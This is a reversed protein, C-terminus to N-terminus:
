KAIENIKLSTQLLKIMYDFHPNEGLEVLRNYIWSLHNVNDVMLDERSLVYDRSNEKFRIPIATGQLQEWNNMWKIIKEIQFETLFPLANDELIDFKLLESGQETVERQNINHKVLEIEETSYNPKSKLSELVDIIQIDGKQLKEFLTERHKAFEPSTEVFHKVCSHCSECKNSGEIKTFMQCVECKDIKDSEGILKEKIGKYAVMNGNNSYNPKSFEVKFFPFENIPLYSVKVSESIPKQVKVFNRKEDFQFQNSLLESIEFNEVDEILCDLLFKRKKKKSDLSKLYSLQELNLKIEM